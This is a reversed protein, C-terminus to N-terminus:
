ATVANEFQGNRVKQPLLFPEGLASRAVPLAKGVKRRLVLLEEM